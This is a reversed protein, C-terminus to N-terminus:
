PTKKPSTNNKQRDNSTEQTKMNKKIFEAESPMDELWEALTKNNPPFSSSSIHWETKRKKESTSIEM